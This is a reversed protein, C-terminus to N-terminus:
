WVSRIASYLTSLGIGESKMVAVLKDVMERIIQLHNKNVGALAIVEDEDVDNYWRFMSDTTHGQNIMIAQQDHGEQRKRKTYCHRQDHTHFHEWKTNKVAARYNQWYTNYSLPKDQTVGFVYPSRDKRHEKIMKLDHLVEPELGITRTKREKVRKADLTITGKTLDIDSWRLNLVESVRMGTYWLTRVIPTVYWQSKEFVKVFENFEDPSITTNRKNKMKFLKTFKIHAIPNLNIVENEIAHNFTTKFYNVYKEITAIAKGDELMEAVWEKVEKTPIANIRYDGWRRTLGNIYSCNRHASTGALYTKYDAALTKFQLTEFRQLMGNEKGTSLTRKDIYRQADTKTPFGSKQIRTGDLYFDAIWNNKAKKRVAM